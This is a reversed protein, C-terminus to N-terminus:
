ENLPKVMSALTKGDHNSIATYWTGNWRWSVVHKGNIEKIHYDRPNICKKIAEPDPAIRGNSEMKKFNFAFIYIFQDSEPISYVLLPTKYEPTFNSYVVGKLETNELPPVTVPFGILESLKIEAETLSNAKFTPEILQGGNNTFHTYVNEEINYIQTDAQTFYLFGLLIGIMLTAAVGYIWRKMGGDAEAREPEEEEPTSEAPIQGPQDLYPNRTKRDPYRNPADMFDQVKRRLSDPAKISKYRTSVLVKIRKASEFQLRVEDDRELYKFFAIKTDENVENDVVPTILRIAEEKTLKNGSM